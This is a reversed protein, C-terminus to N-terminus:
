DELQKKKLKQRLNEEWFFFNLTKESENFQQFIWSSGPKKWTAGVKHPHVIWVKSGTAKNYVLAAINTDM